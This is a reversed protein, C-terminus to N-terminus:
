LGTREVLARDVPAFLGALPERAHHREARALRPGVREGRQRALAPDVRRREHLVKPRELCPEFLLVFAPPAPPSGGILAILTPTRTASRADADHACSVSSRGAPAVAGSKTAMECSPRAM